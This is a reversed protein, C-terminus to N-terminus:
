LVRRLPWILVEQYSAYHLLPRSDPLHIGCALAQTNRQEDLEATQLPWLRHHIGGRYLHHRFVTYLSYRETLWRALSGEQASFVPGTPRYSAVFDAPPAGRHTRHSVYHITDDLRACQMQANFYPLHFLSRAIAVAVPSGADLSFFYVGPVGHSTVYTRVNLEPFTSLGKIPPIGRPRVHSMRFPVVGLWAEGDFTDLDLLPPILPRLVSPSVPWHAFLLEHWIQTMVWPGSPLPSALHDVSRLIADTDM